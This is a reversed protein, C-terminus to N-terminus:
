YIHVTPDENIWEHVDGITVHCKAIELARNGNFLFNSEVYNCEAFWIDISRM